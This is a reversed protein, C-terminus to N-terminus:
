LPTLTSKQESAEVVCKYRLYVDSFVNVQSRLLSHSLDYCESMRCSLLLVTM